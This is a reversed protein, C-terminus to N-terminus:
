SFVKELKRKLMGPIQAPRKLYYELRELPEGRRAGRIPFLRRPIECNLFPCLKEWGEGGCVNMVLLDQERGKFYQFVNKIHEEYARRFKKEDFYISDYLDLHLQDYRSPRRLRMELEEKSSVQYLQSYQCSRLWGKMERVTLIFKSNPYRRDLEPYIRTVPTDVLADFQDSIDYNIELGSGTYSLLKVTTTYHVAKYGLMELAARLSRTGTRSLGIGFIKM